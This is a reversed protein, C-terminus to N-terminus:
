KTPHILAPEHCGGVGGHHIPGWVMVSPGRNGDNPQVSVDLLREGKSHRVRVRGGSHYLCFRSEDSFM